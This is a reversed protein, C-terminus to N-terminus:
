SSDNAENKRDRGRSRLSSPRGFFRRNSMRQLHRRSFKKNCEMTTYLFTSNRREKACMSQGGGTVSPAQIDFPFKKCIPKRTRGLKWHIRQTPYEVLVTSRRHPTTTFKANGNSKNRRIDTSGAFLGIVM